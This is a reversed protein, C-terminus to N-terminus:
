SRGIRAETMHSACPSRLYFDAYGDWESAM